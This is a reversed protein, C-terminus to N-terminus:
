WKQERWPKPKLDTYEGSLSHATFIAWFFAGVIACAVLMAGTVRAVVNAGLMAFLLTLLGFFLGILAAFVFVVWSKPKDPPLFSRRFDSVM